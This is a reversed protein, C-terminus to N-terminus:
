RAARAVPPGVISDPLASRRLGDTVAVPSTRPPLTRYGRACVGAHGSEPPFRIPTRQCAGAGDAPGHFSEEQDGRAGREAGAGVTGGRGGATHRERLDALREVDGVEQGQLGLAEVPEEAVLAPALADGGGGLLPLHGAGGAQLVDELLDGRDLVERPGHRQAEAVVAELRGLVGELLALLAVHREGSRQEHGGLEHVGGRTLDLALGDEHAVEREHGRAAGEDDVAGLADDHRLEHARRADVELVGDVLRGVLVDVGRLDDGAAARPELELDVLAVHHADADVALALLGDRDEELREAPGVRLDELLEALELGHPGRELLVVVVPWSSASSSM